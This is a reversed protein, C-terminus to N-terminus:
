RPEIAAVHRRVAVWSGLLGLGIAVGWLFLVETFSLGVLRFSGEYLEAVRTVARSIWWVLLLTAFWAIVGGLVGYWFGTYLFPRQIYGDTAGVLKMVIIEDRRNLIMLRITNGVILVVAGCLLIALAGLVDEVLRTLAQLRELWQLDIRGSSVERENSLQALLDAARDASRYDVTPVVVLVDPLPNRDLYDLASGFGSTERFERLGEDRPILTVREVQDKLAVRQVFNEIESTQLDKRLSLSIEAANDWGSTAAESNKVLVYMTSPLTLSLGLVAITMISAIPNRSLEGLSGTAQQLNHIWFMTFRRWRSISVTKAGSRQEQNPRKQASM